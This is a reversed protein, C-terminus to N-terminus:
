NLVWALQQWHHFFKVLPDSYGISINKYKKKLYNLIILDGNTLYYLYATTCQLLSINQKEIKDFRNIAADLDECKVWQIFDGKEGIENVTDLLM